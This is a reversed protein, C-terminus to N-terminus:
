AKGLGVEKGLYVFIDKELNSGGLKSVPRSFKELIM